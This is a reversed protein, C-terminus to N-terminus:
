LMLDGVGSTQTDGPPYTVHSTCVYMLRLDRREIGRLIENGCRRGSIM